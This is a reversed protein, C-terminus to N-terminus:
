GCGTVKTVIDRKIFFRISYDPVSTSWNLGCETRAAAVEAAEVRPTDILSMRFAALQALSLVKRLNVVLRYNNLVFKALYELHYAINELRQVYVTM